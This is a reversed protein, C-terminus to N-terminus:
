LNLKLEIAMIGGRGFHSPPGHGLLLARDLGIAKAEEDDEVANPDGLSALRARWLGSRPDGQLRAVLHGAAGRILVGQSHDALVDLGL